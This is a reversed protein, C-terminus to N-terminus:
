WSPAATRVLDLGSPREASPAYVPLGSAARLAAVGVVVHVVQDVVQHLLDDQVAALQCEHLVAVEVLM